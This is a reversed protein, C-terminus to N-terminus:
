QRSKYVRCFSILTWQESLTVQFDRCFRIRTWQKSSTVLFYRPDWSQEWSIVNTLFSSHFTNFVYSKHSGWLVATFSCVHVCEGLCSQCRPSVLCTWTTRSCLAVDRLKPAGCWCELGCRCGKVILVWVIWNWGPDMDLTLSLRKSFLIEQLNHFYVWIDAYIVRTSHGM